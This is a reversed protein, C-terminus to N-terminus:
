LINMMFKLITILPRNLLLSPVDFLILLMLIFFGNKYVFDHFKSDGLNFIETVINFGDLPPVPLLNFLMLSLNIVVTSYLIDFVVGGMKSFLMDPWIKILLQILLAFVFAVIFNMTVGAVSVLISDRRRKNFNAPNVIVPRGWGFRILMLSILGMPDVHVMPDLTCRGMIKSTPDGCKCAVWAHAFEHFSLAVIIGPILTLTDMVWNAVGKLGASMLAAGPGAMLLVVFLLLVRTNFFRKM